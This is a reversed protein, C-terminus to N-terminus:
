LTKLLEAILKDISRINSKISENGFGKIQYHREIFKRIDLYLSYVGFDDTLIGCIDLYHIKCLDTGNYGNIYKKVVEKLQKDKIGRFLGLLKNGSHKNEIPSYLPVRNERFSSTLKGSPVDVKKGKDSITLSISAIEKIKKMQDDNWLEERGDKTDEYEVYVKYSFGTKPKLSKDLSRNKLLDYYVMFADSDIYSSLSITGSLESTLKADNDLQPYNEFYRGMLENYDKGTINYYISFKGSANDITDLLLDHIKRCGLLGKIPLCSISHITTKSPPKFSKNYFDKNYSFGMIDKCLSYLSYKNGNFMYKKQDFIENKFKEDNIGDFMFFRKKPTDSKVVKPKLSIFGDNKKDTYNIDFIFDGENFTLVNSNDYKSMDVYDPRCLTSLGPIGYIKICFGKPVLFGFLTNIRGHYHVYVNNAM